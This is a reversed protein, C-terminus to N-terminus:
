EISMFQKGMLEPTLSRALSRILAASCALSTPLASCAISHTTHAFSCVSSRIAWYSVRRNWLRELWHARMFFTAPTYSYRFAKLSRRLFFSCFTTQWNLGNKTQFNPSKKGRLRPVHNALSRAGAVADPRSLVFASHALLTQVSSNM